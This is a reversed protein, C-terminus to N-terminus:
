RAPSIPIDQPAKYGVKGKPFFYPFAQEECFKDNLISISKKGQGQAIIDNENNIIIPIESFLAAENSGTKNM